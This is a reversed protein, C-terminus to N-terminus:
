KRWYDFENFPIRKSLYDPDKDHDYAEREFSIGRYATKTHFVLRYIWELFYLVYFPVYYLERMQETHISEHSIVNEMYPAGKYERRAFIVGFLNIAVFGKIPFHKTYIIKSM